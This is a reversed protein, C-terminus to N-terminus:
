RRAASKLTLKHTWSAPNDPDRAFVDDEVEFGPPAGDLRGPTPQPLGEWGKERLMAADYRGGTCEFPANCRITRTLTGDPALVWGTDSITWRPPSTPAKRGETM